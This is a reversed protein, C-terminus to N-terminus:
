RPYNTKLEEARIGLARRMWDPLRQQGPSSQQRLRAMEEMYGEHIWAMHPHAGPPVGVSRGTTGVFFIPQKPQVTVEGDEQIATKLYDPFVDLGHLFLGVKPRGDIEFSIRLANGETVGTRYRDILIPGDAEMIAFPTGREAMMDMEYPQDKAHFYSRNEDWENYLIRADPGLNLFPMKDRKQPATQYVNRGWSRDENPPQYFLRGRGLNHLDEVESLTLGGPSRWSQTIETGYTGAVNSRDMNPSVGALAMQRYYDHLETAAARVRKEYWAEQETLTATKKSLTKKSVPRKVARIADQGQKFVRNAIAKDQAPPEPPLLDLGIQGVHPFAVAFGADTLGSLV